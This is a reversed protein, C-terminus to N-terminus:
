VPNNLNLLKGTKVKGDKKESSVQIEQGSGEDAESSETITFLAVVLVVFFVKM